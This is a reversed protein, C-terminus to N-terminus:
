NAETLRASAELLLGFSTRVFGAWVGWPMTRVDTVRSAGAAEWRRLQTEVAARSDLRFSLLVSAQPGELPAIAETSLTHTLVAPSVFALVRQTVPCQLEAYGDEHSLRHLTLGLTEQFFSAAQKVGQVVVVTHTWEAPLCSPTPRCM